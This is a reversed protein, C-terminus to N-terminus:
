PVDALLTHMAAQCSIFGFASFICMNNDSCNSAITPVSRHALGSHICLVHKKGSLGSFSREAIDAHATSIYGYCFNYDYSTLLSVFVGRGSAFAVAVERQKLLM